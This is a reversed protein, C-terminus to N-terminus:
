GYSLCDRCFCQSQNDEPHYLVRPGPFGGADAEAQLDGFTTPEGDEVLVPTSPNFHDDTVWLSAM